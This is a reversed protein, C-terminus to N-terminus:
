VPTLQWYPKKWFRPIPSLNDDGPNRVAERITELDSIDIALKKKNIEEVLDNFIVFAEYASTTIAFGHPIPLHLRNQVEGLHASKGGVWDSMEHTIGTYPMVLAPATLQKKEELETKIKQHIGELVPYLM